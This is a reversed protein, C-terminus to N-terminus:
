VEKKDLQAIESKLMRCIGELEKLRDNIRADSPVARLREIEAEAERLSRHLKSGIPRYFPM